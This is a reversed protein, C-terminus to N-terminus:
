PKSTEPTFEQWMGQENVELVDLDRQLEFESVRYQVRAATLANQASVLDEQAELVDRIQARGARLFLGTSEVRRRAVRVAEEQIRLSERAALLTRLDHRPAAM